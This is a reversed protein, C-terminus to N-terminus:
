SLKSFHEALVDFVIRFRRSTHLERHSILWVPFRVAVSQPLVAEVERCARAVHDSMFGIGLGRRVLEWAVTGNASGLPVNAVTVPLGMEVLYGVMQASDGFSVFRHRAFDMLDQPRGYRVFYGPTAYLHATEETVLKATLDPQEPRVHRLAIDAERRQLDRIDNAAVIEIEIGPAIQNIKEVAGPLVYHSFVDSATIRVLGEASQAQGQATLSLGAAAEAMARAHDLLDRGARTLAVSRGVREFLTVGLAEELAAVQRGLTPQTLGLVRAAASFSGEEATALFARVQGWDFAIATWNM